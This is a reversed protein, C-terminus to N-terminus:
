DLAIDFVNTGSKLTVQKGSTSPDAYKADIPFWKSVDPGPQSPPAPMGEKVVAKFVIPKESVVGVKVLGTPAHPVTFTGDAEIAGAASEGKPGVLNVIGFALPKGKSLVKGTVTCTGGESGCGAGQIMVAFSFCAGVLLRLGSKMTM